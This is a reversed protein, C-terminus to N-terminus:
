KSAPKMSADKKDLDGFLDDLARELKVNVDVTAHVEIPDMKVHICSALLFAIAPLFLLKTRKM